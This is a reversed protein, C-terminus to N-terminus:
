KVAGMIKNNYASFLEEACEEVICSFDLEVYAVGFSALHLYRGFCHVKDDIDDRTFTFIVNYLLESLKDASAVNRGEPCEAVSLAAPAVFCLM